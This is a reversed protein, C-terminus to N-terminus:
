SLCVETVRSLGWMLTSYEFQSTENVFTDSKLRNFMKPLLNVENQPTNDTTDDKKSDATGDDDADDEDEDEAEIEEKKEDQPGDEPLSELDRSAEKHKKKLLEVLQLTLEFNEAQEKKTLKNLVTYAHELVAYQQEIGLSSFNPAELLEIMDTLKGRVGDDAPAEDDKEAQKQNAKFETQKAKILAALPRSISLDHAPSDMYKSLLPLALALLEEQRDLTQSSFDKQLLQAVLMLKKVFQDEATTKGKRLSEARSRLSENRKQLLAFVETLAALERPDNCGEGDIVSRLEQTADKLDFDDAEELQKKLKQIRQLRKEVPSTAPLPAPAADDEDDDDDDIDDHKQVEAYVKKIETLLESSHKEPLDGAFDVLKSLVLMINNLQARKQAANAKLFDSSKLCQMIHVLFSVHESVSKAYKTELLQEAASAQTIGSLPLLPNARASPVAAPTDPTTATTAGAAPSQSQSSATQILHRLKLRDGLKTIGIADFMEESILGLISGDINEAEMAAAAEASVGNQALWAAVEASSWDQSPVSLKLDELRRRVDSQKLHSRNLCKKCGVTGVVGIAGGVGIAPLLKWLDEM